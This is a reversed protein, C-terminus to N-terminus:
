KMVSSVDSAVDIGGMIAGITKNTSIIYIFSVIAIIVIIMIFDAISALFLPSLKGVMHISNNPKSYYVSTNGLPPKNKGYAVPVRYKRDANYELYHSCGPNPKNYNCDKFQQGEKRQYLLKGTTNVYKRSYMLYTVWLMIFLLIVAIVLAFYAKIKAYLQLGTTVVDM